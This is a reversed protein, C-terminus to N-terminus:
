RAWSSRRFLGLIKPIVADGISALTLTTLAARYTFYRGNILRGPSLLAAALQLRKEMAPNCRRRVQCKKM